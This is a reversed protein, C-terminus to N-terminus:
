FFSFSLRMSSTVAFGELKQLVVVGLLVNLRQVALTGFAPIETVNWVLNFFTIIPMPRIM